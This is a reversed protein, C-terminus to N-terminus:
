KLTGSVLQLVMLEGAEDHYRDAWAQVLESLEKLAEAKRTPQINLTELARLVDPQEDVWAKMLQFFRDVDEILTYTREQKGAPSYTKKALVYLPFGVPSDLRLVTKSHLLRLEIHDALADSLPQRKDPPLFDQSQDHLEELLSLFLDDTLIQANPLDDPLSAEIQRKEGSTLSSIPWRSAGEPCGYFQQWLYPLNILYSPEQSGLIKLLRGESLALQVEQVIAKVRKPELHHLSGTKRLNQQEELYTMYITLKAATTAADLFAGYRHGGQRMANEALHFLLKDIASGQLANYLDVLKSETEPYNM